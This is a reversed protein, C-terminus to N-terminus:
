VLLHMGTEVRDNTEEAMKKTKDLHVVAFFKDVHNLFKVSMGETFFIASDGSADGKQRVSFESDDFICNEKFEDVFAYYQTKHLFRVATRKFDCM